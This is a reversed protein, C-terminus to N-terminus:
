LDIGELEKCLEKVNNTIETKITGDFLHEFVVGDNWDPDKFSKFSPWWDNHNGGLRRSIEKYEDKANEKDLQSIYRVGYNFNKLGNGMFEFGIWFHKWEPKAFFFHSYQKSWDTISCTCVMKLENAMEQVQEKLTTNCIRNLVDFHVSRIKFMAAINDKNALLDVLKEKTSSEMDQNTLKLILNYYQTITERVVPSSAAKEKCSILWDRIFSKYDICFFDKGEEMSFMDGSTSDNSPVHGDLTLYLIIYSKYHTQAYNKYRYLQKKQDDAYIKNEIIIAKDRKESQIIIDIRGGSENGSSINGINYEVYVHCKELDTDLSFDVIPLSEKLHDVFIKLFTSNCGHNWKPNLLSAIIASHTYVEDGQAHMVEFINYNEGRREKEKKLIKEEQVLQNVKHLLSIM